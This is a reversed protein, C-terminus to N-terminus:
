AAAQDSLGHTALPHSADVPCAGELDARYDPHVDDMCGVCFTPEFGPVEAYASRIGHQHRDFRERKEAAPFADWEEIRQLMTRADRLDQAAVVGRERQTHLDIM